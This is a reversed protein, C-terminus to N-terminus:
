TNISNFHPESYAKILCLALHSNQFDTTKWMGNGILILIDRLYWSYIIHAFALALELYFLMTNANIVTLM